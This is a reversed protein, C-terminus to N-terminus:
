QVTAGIGGIAAALACALNVVTTAFFGFAAPPALHDLLYPLGGVSPIVALVATLAPAWRWPTLVLAAAVVLFALGLSAQPHFQGIFRLLVVQALASLLLASLVLKTLAPVPERFFLTRSIMM